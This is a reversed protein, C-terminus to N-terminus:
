SVDKRKMVVLIAIVMLLAFSTMIALYPGKDKWFRSPLPFAGSAAFAEPPAELGKELKEVDDPHLSISVTNVIQYAYDQTSHSGHLCLDSLAELGWRSIALASLWRAFTPMGAVPAPTYKQLKKQVKESPAVAVAVQHAFEGKKARAQAAEEPSAQSAPANLMQRAEAQAEPQAFMKGEYLEGLTIPIIPHIQKVPLFLGCLLLEPILVLPFLSLAKEPTSVLGSILLGILTGNVAVLFLIGIAAVAEPLSLALARNVALLIVVVSVCQALAVFSLVALKSLIYAPIKLGTQRERRYVTQEDVIERVANSCGFWLAAFVAMFITEIQNPSTAM